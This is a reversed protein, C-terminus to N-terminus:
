PSRCPDRLSSSTARRQARPYSSCRPLSFSMSDFGLTDILGIVVAPATYESLDPVERNDPCVHSVDTIKRAIIRREQV